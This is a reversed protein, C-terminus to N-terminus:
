NLQFNSPVTELAEFDSFWMVCVVIAYNVFCQAKEEIRNITGSTTGATMSTYYIKKECSFTGISQPLKM